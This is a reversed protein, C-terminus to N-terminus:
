KDLAADIAANHDEAFGSSYSEDIGLTPIKAARLATKLELIRMNLDYSKQIADLYEKQPVRNEAELEAIRDISIEHDAYKVWMGDSTRVQRNQGAIHKGFTDFWLKYRPISM